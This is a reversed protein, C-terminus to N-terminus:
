DLVEPEVQAVPQVLGLAVPEVEAVLREAIATVEMMALALLEQAM